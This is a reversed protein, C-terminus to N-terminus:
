KMALANLPTKRDWLERTVISSHTEGVTLGNRVSACPRRIHLTGM